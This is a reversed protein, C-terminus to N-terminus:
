FPSATFLVVSAALESNKVRLLVHPCLVLAALLIAIDVQPRLKILMSQSIPESAIRVHRYMKATRNTASLM